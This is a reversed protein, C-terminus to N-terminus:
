NIIILMDLNGGERKEGSRSGGGVGEYLHSPSSPSPPPFALKFLVSVIATSM